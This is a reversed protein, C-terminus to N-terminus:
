KKTFYLYRKDIIIRRLKVKGEKKCRKLFVEDLNPKLKTVSDITKMPPLWFKKIKACKEDDFFSTVVEM